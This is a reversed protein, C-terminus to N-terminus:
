RDSKDFTDVLEKTERFRGYYKEYREPIFKMVVSQVDRIFYNYFCGEVVCIKQVYPFLDLLFVTDEPFVTMFFSDSKVSNGTIITKGICNIM